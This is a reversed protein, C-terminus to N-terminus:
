RAVQVEVRRNKSMGVETSSADKLDDSSSVTIRGADIGQNVLADKIAEARKQGLTELDTRDEARDKEMQDTYGVLEVSIDKDANMLEAMEKVWPEMSSDINTQFRKFYFVQRGLKGAVPGSGEAFSTRGFIFESKVPEAKGCNCDAAYRVPVVSVDDIYYYGIQAQPRMEGDPKKIKEVSTEKTAKFNGLTMHKEGGEAEYIGCVLQWEELDSYIRTRQEPFQANYTLNVLEDKDVPKKSFFIGVESTAFQSLDSLSVFYKVCYKEGATMPRTFTTQLYTRPDSDNASYVRIGAFNNGARPAQSGYQNSEASLPPDSVQDSFLDAKTATPSTWGKAMEISGMKKLRGKPVDFSGNEVLDQAHFPLAFPLLMLMHVLRIAKM